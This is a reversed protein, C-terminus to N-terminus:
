KYLSYLKSRGSGLKFSFLYIVVKSAWCRIESLKLKNNTKNIECICNDTEHYIFLKSWPLWSKVTSLRTSGWKLPASIELNKIAAERSNLARRWLLRWLLRRGSEKRRGLQLGRLLWVRRQSYTCTLFPSFINSWVHSLDQLNYVKKGAQEEHKTERWFPLLNFHKLLLFVSAIM